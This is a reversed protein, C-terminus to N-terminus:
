LGSIVSRNPVQGTSLSITVAQPGATVIILQPDIMRWIAKGKMSSSRGVRMRASNPMMDNWMPMATSIPSGHNESAIIPMSKMKMRSRVHFRM